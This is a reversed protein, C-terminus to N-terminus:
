AGRLTTDYMLVHSPGQVVQPIAQKQFSEAIWSDGGGDLGVQPVKKNSSPARASLGQVLAVPSTAALLLLLVRDMKLMTM